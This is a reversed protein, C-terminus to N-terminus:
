TSRYAIFYPLRGDGIRYDTDGIILKQVACRLGPVIFESSGGLSRGGGRAYGVWNGPVRTRCDRRRLFFFFLYWFLGACLEMGMYESVIGCKKAIPNSNCNSFM